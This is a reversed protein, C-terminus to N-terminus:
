LKGHNEIKVDSKYQWLTGMFPRDFWVIPLGNTSNIGEEICVGLSKNEYTRDQTVKDIWFCEKGVYSDSM